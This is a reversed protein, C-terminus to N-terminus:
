SLVCWFNNTPPARGPGCVALFRVASGSMKVPNIPRSLAGPIPPTFPLFLFPCSPALNAPIVSPFFVPRYPPLKAGGWYVLLEVIAQIARSTAMWPWELDDTKTGISVADHSAILVWYYNGLTTAYRLVNSTKIPTQTHTNTLMIVESRTFMPNHFKPALHMTCFDRGLKFKPTM